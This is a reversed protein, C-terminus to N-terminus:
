RRAGQASILVHARAGKSITMMLMENEVPVIAFTCERLQGGVFAAISATGDDASKGVCIHGSIDPNLVTISCEIAKFSKLEPPLGIGFPMGGILPIGFSMSKDRSDYIVKHPNVIAM